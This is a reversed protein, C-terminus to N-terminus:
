LITGWIATSRIQVKVVLWVITAKVGMFFSSFSFSESSEDVFQGKPLVSSDSFLWLDQSDQNNISDVFVRNINMFM